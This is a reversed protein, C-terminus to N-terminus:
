RSPIIPLLVYPQQGPVFHLTNVGGFVAPPRDEPHTHLFPGVGTLTYKVGELQLPPGEYAYDKGQVSLGIRYGVPVQISTPWIEVDLDVPEGAQAAL